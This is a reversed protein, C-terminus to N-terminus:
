STFPCATYKFSFEAYLTNTNCLYQMREKCLCDGAYTRKFGNEPVFLKRHFLDVPLLSHSLSLSLTISLYLFVLNQVKIARLHNLHKHFVDGSIFHYLTTHHLTPHFLILHNLTPHYLTPHFLIPHYLTLYNCTYEPPFLVQIEPISHYYKIDIKAPTAECSDKALKSTMRVAASDMSTASQQYPFSLLAVFTAEQNTNKQYLM